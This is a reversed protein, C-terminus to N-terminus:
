ISGPDVIAVEALTSHGRFIPGSAYGELKEVSDASHLRELADARLGALWLNHQFLYHQVYHSQQGVVSASM